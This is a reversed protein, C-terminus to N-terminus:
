NMTEFTGSFATICSRCEINGNPQLFLDKSHKCSDHHYSHQCYYYKSKKKDKIKKIINPIVEAASDILIYRKSEDDRVRRLRDLLNQFEVYEPENKYDAKDLNYNTTM